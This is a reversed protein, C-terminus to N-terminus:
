LRAHATPLDVPSPRLRRPHARPPTRDRSFFGTGTPGYRTLKSRLSSLLGGNTDSADGTLDAGIAREVEDSDSVPDTSEVGTSSLVDDLEDYLDRTETAVDANERRRAV